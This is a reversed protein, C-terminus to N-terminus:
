PKGLVQPVGQNGSPNAMRGMGAEDSDRKNEGERKSQVEKQIIDLLKLVGNQHEKAAGIQAQILAIQHGTDVGEAEKMLKVAEAELKLIKGQNLSAENQLKLIVEQHKIQLQQQELQIKMQEIQVKPNPPPPIANPGKPDPFVKDIDTVKFAELYRKEVEYKNYGSTSMAAQRLMLAQQQKQSDSVMNPDAAPRVFIDVDKYDNPYIVVAENSDTMDLEVSTEFYIQNLRFLKNFESKLARYTRKYIGSFIKLGQELANRSTEAPTNQGPLVGVASDTAFAVREGYNVLLQLLQLLVPSPERVPLPFINKRLDDGTSDVRKWEQPKFEYDGGKIRVGRGLFGGATNSMTGADILQNIMTNISENIPGLLVGFGLDYFSGDPSPIFPFKTFYQEAAIHYITGKENRKISDEFFRAVVRMVQETDTRVTVVYPEKYGDGDLDLYTHQEIFEYVGDKDYQPNVIGHAEDAAEDVATKTLNNSPKNWEEGWDYFVGRAVREFVENDSLRIVHSIRNATEFSKTFYDVVLDTPLVYESTNHGKIPNFMTKKFACGIIPQTILVRDMNDEWSDDEELIQYSMHSAIRSAKAAREGSSDKGVVRVKVVDSSPILTPYSRAHYQLSAITLLPFKVNSSGPWPFSKEEVVQMALKLAEANREEWDERSSKDRRFGDMVHRGLNGLDEENMDEAINAKSLVDELKFTQTFEM